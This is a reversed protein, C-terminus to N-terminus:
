QGAQTTKFPTSNNADGIQILRTPDISKHNFYKNSPTPFDSSIADVKYISREKAHEGGFVLNSIVISIIGAVIVSVAILAIDKQKLMM